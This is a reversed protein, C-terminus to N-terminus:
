ELTVRAVDSGANVYSSLDVPKEGYFLHVASAHGIVMTYPAVGEVRLESGPANVQRALVKGSQDKIEAWSEKDFVLRLASVTKAAAVTSASMVMSVPAVVPSSAAVDIVESVESAVLMEVQDPMPLSAVDSAALDITAVPQQPTSNQWAAFVAILVTVLLAASLLNINQRRSTKETPLPEEVKAQVTNVVVAGPLADLLPQADLQLLKAYSRVFGRLFATEPLVQFDDAELAIIQRPALKIKVVVDDISMGMSERATRLICGVSPSAQEVVAAEQSETGSALAQEPVGTQEPENKALPEM